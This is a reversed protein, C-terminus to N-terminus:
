NSKNMKDNGSGTFDDMRTADEDNKRSEDIDPPVTRFPILLMDLLGRRYRSSSALVLEQHKSNKSVKLLLSYFENKNLWRDAWPPKVHIRPEGLM